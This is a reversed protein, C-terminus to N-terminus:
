GGNVGLKRLGKTYVLHLTTASLTIWIIQTSLVHALNLADYNMFANVPEYIMYPFPTYQLVTQVAEPYFDLPVLMGGAIFRLKSYIFRAARTQELWFSTLGITITITSTLLIALPWTLLAIFHAPQLQLPGVFSYAFVTIFPLLLSLRQAAVGFLISIEKKAYNVPKTLTTAIEGSRVDNGIDRLRNGHMALNIMQAFGVYWIVQTFTYGQITQGPGYVTGYLNFYIFMIVGLFGGWGLFNTTNSIRELFETRAYAYYKNM